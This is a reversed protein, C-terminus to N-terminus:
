YCPAKLFFFEFHGPMNNIVENKIYSLFNLGHNKLIDYALDNGFNLMALYCIKMYYPLKEMAGTDWRFLYIFLYFPDPLIFNHFIILSFHLATLLIM